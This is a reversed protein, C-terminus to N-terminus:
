KPLAPGLFAALWHTQRVERAQQFLQKEYGLAFSGSEQKLDDRKRKLGHSDRDTICTTNALMFSIIYFCIAKYQVRITQLYQISLCPLVAGVKLKRLQHIPNFLKLQKLIIFAERKWVCLIDTKLMTHIIELLLWHRQMTVWLLFFYIIIKKNKIGGSM